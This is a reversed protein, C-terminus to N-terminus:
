FYKCPYVTNCKKAEIKFNLFINKFRDGGFFIRCQIFEKKFYVRPEEVAILQGGGWGVTMAKQIQPSKWLQHV